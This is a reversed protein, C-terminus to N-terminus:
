RTCRKASFNWSQHRVMSKWCERASATAAHSIRRGSLLVSATHVTETEDQDEMIGTKGDLDLVAHGRVLRVISFIQRLVEMKKEAEERTMIDYDEM